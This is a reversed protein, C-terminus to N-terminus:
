LNELKTKSFNDHWGNGGFFSLPDLPILRCATRIAIDSFMPKEGSVMVVRTRTVLKGLTTSFLAEMFLYYVVFIVIGVLILEGNLDTQSNSKDIILPYILQYGFVYRIFFVDILCNLSRKGLSVKLRNASKTQWREIAFEVDNESVKREYLEKKILGLEVESYMNQSHSLIRLLTKSSQKQLDLKTTPM